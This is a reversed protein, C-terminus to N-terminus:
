FHIIYSILKFKQAHGIGTAGKRRSPIFDQEKLRLLQRQIEQLTM